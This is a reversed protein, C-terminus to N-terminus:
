SMCVLSSSPLGSPNNLEQLDTSLLLCSEGGTVRAAFRIASVRCLLKEGHIGRDGSGRAGKDGYRDYEPFEFRWRDRVERRDPGKSQATDGPKAPETEKEPEVVTFDIKREGGDIIVNELTACKKRTEDCIFNSFVGYDAAKGRDFRAEYPPRVSIRYSGARLRITYSGDARTRQSSIESNTQNVAVVVVGAVPKGGPELVKGTLKGGSSQAAVCSFGIAMSIALWIIQKTFRSLFM